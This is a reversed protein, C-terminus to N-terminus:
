NVTFHAYAPTHTHTSTLKPCACMRFGFTCIKFISPRCYNLCHQSDCRCYRHCHTWSHAHIMRSTYCSQDDTHPEINAIAVGIRNKNKTKWKAKTFINHKQILKSVFVWTIYSWIKMGNVFACDGTSANANVYVWVHKWQCVDYVFSFFFFLFISDLVALGITIPKSKISGQLCWKFFHFNLVHREWQIEMQDLCLVAGSLGPMQKKKEREREEHTHFMGGRLKQMAWLYNCLNENRHRLNLFNNQLNKNNNNM